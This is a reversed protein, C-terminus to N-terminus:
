QEHRQAHGSRLRHQLGGSKGLRRRYGGPHSPTAGIVVPSAPATFNISQMIGIVVVSQTVEPAPAYDANGAQNAAIVITGVGTVTLATGTISGPGSVISFVVPNGSAGGTAVLTIPAVGYTVPSTPATFNITQSEGNVVVSQTVQPAATYDANGAQNAAIVITGVGTVTLTNNNTGSLTGPGSLISFVVPNGSAGGTAVLTIPAVGYTVPSTPATFSITQAIGNVVVSQTVQPAAAYDANGAQNAAIVITGVGNITLTHNNTGSLTGPGSLISFVVPNGSAGGTAVLTIPAVGYTVPSTPPTFVITQSVANVVVSQTVQPAAAYNANGAQNAAIVITGVGTITLTNNNTGSLTGPGSVISFTVPLGSTATAVLTIPAVGYTVPSTPPTFAITQSEPNVVVSQTVQPAALFDANGAQNAAIVITGVGNITLTHNNTGSLTGPGSLISFVVPNGSGGGTAVLTIPAVGYTVPSTPPTFVITQTEANVVVSQTVQPAALYDANGAQNAAIVITGVGNITLTNNNTGSLTGPGSLISFVVPNGSGGGTAVLTIPAVGYTVPSTPPTFVIAQTEANVVVSQTVQPAALYDANGAQNAAIVITGVGNITLTNNNTGSLTGPGSLISFVVPNGSGGGTAVLTIPAVGYTVPSTPPTFVITQTEANVVVSQTVQPAALYDANGAQNAAIVITGVGNITLTHNNTGSLTGPGSLISFVVPNGSGGGTAVLTIPAVGYTVPSTPPTFVITQTEANVVVSQTVQPAPAYTSNGAQNAAIVITGVGTITLTNNNLGSLTGPGSLISFVVPNGSGGGAAVLTYPGTGFNVPSVPATFLITQPIGNVVVSQTVQPAALYDDNGAQNAAIVITGVGTITLSTGTISGPGSLISFVVPNGSAGGTAVLTYPGTGYIVPSAPPTFNITQTAQDVVVSQTVQPAPAYQANGAQNAAIVITGVGTITLTDNNLGSLTGPGSLISFSVPLGSPSATAVLTYPGTGYDVPSLPPTFTITQADYGTGSLPIVQAAYTPGIANLTNDTLTLTGTFPGFTAPDFYASLTCSAGAALSATTAPSTLVTCATVPSNDLDFGTTIAPNNGTPPAEITLTANGINQVTVTQDATAVGM